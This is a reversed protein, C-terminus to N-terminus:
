PSVSGTADFLVRFPRASFRRTTITTNSYNEGTDILQPRGSPRGKEYPLSAPPTEYPLRHDSRLSRGGSLLIDRKKRGRYRDRLTKVGSPIKIRSEM